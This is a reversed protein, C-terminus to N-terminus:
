SRETIDHSYTEVYQDGDKSVWVLLEGPATWRYKIAEEDVPGIPDDVISISEWLLGPNDLIRDQVMDKVREDTLDDFKEAEYEFELEVTARKISM